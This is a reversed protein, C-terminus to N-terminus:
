FALSFVKARQWFKKCVRLVQLAIQMGTTQSSVHLTESGHLCLWFLPQVGLLIFFYFSVLKMVFPM